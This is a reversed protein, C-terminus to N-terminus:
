DRVNLQEELLKIVEGQKINTYSTDGYITYGETGFYNLVM